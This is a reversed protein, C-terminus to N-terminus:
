RRGSLHLSSSLLLCSLYEQCLRRTWFAQWCSCFAAVSTLLRCVCIWEWVSAGTHQARNGRCCYVPTQRPSRIHTNLAHHCVIYGMGLGWFFLLALKLNQCPWYPAASLQSRLTSSYVELLNHLYNNSLLGSQSEISLLFTFSWSLYIKFPNFKSYIKFAYMRQQLTRCSSLDFFM